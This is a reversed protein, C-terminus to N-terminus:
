VKNNNTVNWIEIANDNGFALLNGIPSFALGQEAVPSGSRAPGWESDGYGYIVSSGTLFNSKRSFITQGSETDWVLIHEDNTAAALQSCDSNFVMGRLLGGSPNNLFTLLEQTSVDWLLVNQSASAFTKGDPSFLVDSFINSNGTSFGQQCQQIELPDPTSATEPQYTIQNSSIDVWYEEWDALYARLEQGNSTFRVRWIDDKCGTIVQILKGNSTDWIRITG